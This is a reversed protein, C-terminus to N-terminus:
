IGCGVDCVKDSHRGDRFKIGELMQTVIRSHYLFGTGNYRQKYMTSVYAQVILEDTPEGVSM